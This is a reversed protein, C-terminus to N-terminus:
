LSADPTCASSDLAQALSRGYRGVRVVGLPLSSVLCRQLSTGAAALVVTGGDLVLGNSSFRVVEPLNSLLQLRVSAMAEQLREQGQFCPPLTGSRPITWGEGDLSLGCPQGQRQAEVRGRELGQALRRASAELQQRTWFETGGTLATGALLGAIAIGVVLEPLTLGADGM